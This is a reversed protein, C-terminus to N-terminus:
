ELGSAVEARGNELLENIGAEVDGDESTLVAGVGKRGGDGHFGDVVVGKVGEGLSELTLIGDDGGEAGGSEVFLEGEDM